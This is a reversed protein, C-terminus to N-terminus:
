CSARSTALNGANGAAAFYGPKVNHLPSYALLATFEASDATSGYETVNFQGNPITPHRLMDYIGVRSVVARFAEPHQTLEAGMLLGGNSAGHIGLRDPSTWKAAVLAQSAAYMDDFVNQKHTKMGNQHWAEGFESGGRINAVALVGGRELWALSSGIFEPAYPLDFGGYGNLIAPAHGDQLTGKMALVTVPVHTGDKSMADIVRATVKSYDAAPKVAFLTAMAGSRGDYRQWQTPTTWGWWAVLAEPSADSSAIDTVSINAPPLPLVRALKGEATYHEVRWVPGSDEVVLMGGAIPALWQIARPGEALVPTTKGDPSVSIVRGRPSGNTAVVLLRDGSYTATIVGVTDALVSHWGNPARLFVEATTGDGKNALLAANKGDSSGILRYEAVHSYGVGFVATDSAIGITHHFLALDFGTISGSPAPPFRAYTVGKEDADWALASPATGYGAYPLTDAIPRGTVADAFHIATLESGGATTGYAVIRGSPSPWFDRIGAGGGPLGNVDVVVREPGSPWPAAVLVPEPQPPIERLYYMTHGRIAPSTRGVPVGALEGVRKAIAPGEPFSGVVSDVRANQADIWQKVRPSSDNELWRYPDSVVVGHITTDAAAGPGPKNGCGSLTLCALTLFLNHRM